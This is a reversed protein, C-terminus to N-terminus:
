AKVWSQDVYMDSRATHPNLHLLLLHSCIDVVLTLLHTLSMLSIVLSFSPLGRLCPFHARCCQSVGVCIRYQLLLRNHCCSCMM